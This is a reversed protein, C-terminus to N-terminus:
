SRGKLESLVKDKLIAWLAQAQGQMPNGSVIGRHAESLADKVLVREPDLGFGRVLEKLQELRASKTKQRICLGSARYVNAPVRSGERQRRQLSDGQTGDHVRPIM